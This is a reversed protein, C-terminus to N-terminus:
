FKGWLRGGLMMHRTICMLVASLIIVSGEYLLCNTGGQSMFHNPTAKGAYFGMASYGKTSSNIAGSIPPGLLGGIGLITMAIGIRHGVDETSGM